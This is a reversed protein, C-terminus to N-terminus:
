GDFKALRLFPNITAVTVGLYDAIMEKNRGAKQMKKVFNYREKDDLSYWLKKRIGLKNLFEHYPVEDLMKQTIIPLQKEIKKKKTGMKVFDVLQQKMGDKEIFYRNHLNKMDEEAFFSMLKIANDSKVENNRMTRRIQNRHDKGISEWKELFSIDPLHLVHEKLDLITIICDYDIACVIPNKSAKGFYRKGKHDVRASYGKGSKGVGAYGSEGVNKGLVKTM